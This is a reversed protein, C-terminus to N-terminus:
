LKYLSYIRQILLAAHKPECDREYTKTLLDNYTSTDDEIWDENTDYFEDSHSNIVKEYYSIWQDSEHDTTLYKDLSEKWSM